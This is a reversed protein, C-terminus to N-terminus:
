GLSWSGIGMEWSGILVAVLQFESSGDPRFGNQIL